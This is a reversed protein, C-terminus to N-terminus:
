PRTAPVGDRLGAYFNSLIRASKGWSFERLVWERGISGRKRLSDQSESTASRIAEEFKSWPVCWGAGTANLGSWPTTDTVLAPVGNALAEAISLGFNEGHSALIFLSAIAYPAPRGAGDYARVRGANGSRLVYDDIMRPTYDEPIGVVLLLWDRPGAELWADILELLRKKKHFRSYFLAVPREKWAPVIERWHAASAATEEATPEAVGNPAVCVPQRFGLTRLDGAEQDSTAHWGDVAEFAGPHILARAFAKKRAHHKWAWPDMMGRPSVVLTAGIRRATRHAYHLTRLWISHHHVVDATVAKLHSVLGASACVSGPWDRHFARIDLGGVCRQWSDGPDTTLLEVEAGGQALAMALGLVSKSPGGHRAELSPVIHCSKVRVAAVPGKEGQVPKRRM